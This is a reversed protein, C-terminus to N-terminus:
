HAHSQSFSIILGIDDLKADILRDILKNHLQGLVAISRNIHYTIHVTDPDTTFTAVPAFGTGCLGAELLVQGAMDIAQAALEDSTGHKRLIAAALEIGQYSQAYEPYLNKLAPMIKLFFQFKGSLLPMVPLKIFSPFQLFYEEYHDIIQSLKLAQLSNGYLALWATFWVADIGFQTEYDWLHRESEAFDGHISAYAAAAIHYSRFGTSRMEDLTKGLSRVASRTAFDVAEHDKGIYFVMGDIANNVDEIFSQIEPKLQAQAM